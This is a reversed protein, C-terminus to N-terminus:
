GGNGIVSFSGYSTFPVSLVRFAYQINVPFQPRSITHLRWKEDTVDDLVMIWTVSIFFRTSFRSYGMFSKLYPYHTLLCSVPLRPWAISKLLTKWWSAGRYRDFWSQWVFAAFILTLVQWKLSVTLSSYIDRWFYRLDLFKWSLTCLISTFNMIQSGFRM